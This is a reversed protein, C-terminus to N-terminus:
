LKRISPTCTDCSVLIDSLQTNPYPVFIAPSQSISFSTINEDLTMALAPTRTPRPEIICPPLGQATIHRWVYDCAVIRHLVSADVGGYKGVVIHGLLHLRVYCVGVSQYEVSLCRHEIRHNLHLLLHRVTWLYTMDYLEHVSCLEADDALDSM